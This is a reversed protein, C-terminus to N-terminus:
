ICYAPLMSLLRGFRVAEEDKLIKLDKQICRRQKEDESEDIQLEKVAIRTKLALWEDDRQRKREAKREAEDDERKRNKLYDRETQFSDRRMRLEQLEIRLDPKHDKAANSLAAFKADIRENLSRIKSSLDDTLITIDTCALLDFCILSFPRSEGENMNAGSEAPSARGPGPPPV